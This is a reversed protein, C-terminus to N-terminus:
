KDTDQWEPPLLERPPPTALGSRPGRLVEIWAQLNAKFQDRQHRGWLKWLQKRSSGFEDITQQIAASITMGDQHLKAINAVLAKNREDDARRAM